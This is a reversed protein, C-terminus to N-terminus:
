VVTGICEEVKKFKFNKKEAIMIPFNNYITVTKNFCNNIYIYLIIYVEVV